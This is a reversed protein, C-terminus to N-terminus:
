SPRSVGQAQTSPRGLPLEATVRTGGKVPSTVTLTRGLAEVRDALGRLGAGRSPDAGGAGNDTVAVLLHRGHKSVDVTVATADAHKVVNALAEACLYYATVAVEDSTNLDADVSLEVRVPCRAALAQLASPLGAELERPHLGSAIQQLDAITHELHQEARRVHDDAAAVSSLKRALTVLRREVGDQLRLELQRRHEDSAVVLRRRSDELADLQKQVEAVLLANAASLRTAAAVAEAVGPEDLVSADHVLVAFPRSAREVFTAVRGGDTTPLTLRAGRDDTYSGNPSWYGIELTADGLAEALADRLTGAPSDGLEVVLDAVVAASPVALRVALLAAIVCLAAEYVLVMPEVADGSPVARTVVVFGAVAIAFLVSAELSTRRETRDRGRATRLSHAAVAVLGAVLAISVADNDWVPAALASVYGIVITSLELRSRPRWGVYAVILHVLPGRHLYQLGGDFNGAFWAFGTAALLWGSGPRRDVAFAGTGIFTLGVVLDPVWHRPDDWDFSAREALFGVVLGAVALILGV